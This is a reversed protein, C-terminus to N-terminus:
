ETSREYSFGGSQNQQGGSAWSLFKVDIYIDEEILHLVLDVGVIDRPAITTRLPQFTLSAINTTTGQAWETGEPSVNQTSQAETRANYIEGGANGRTLWILDTIRDQNEALTPDAGGNKEFVIKEGTWVNFNENVDTLVVTIVLTESEGTPTAARATATLQPNVEFDFAAADNVSLEGNDALAFAGQVSEEVLTFTIVSGDSAEAELTGIIDNAAPNEAITANLDQTDVVIAEPEDDSCSNILIGILFACSLIRLNKM